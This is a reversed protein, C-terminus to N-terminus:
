TRVEPAIREFWCNGPTYDSSKIDHFDMMAMEERPLVKDKVMQQFRRFTVKDRKQTMIDEPDAFSCWNFGAWPSAWDQSALQPDDQEPADSAAAIASPPLDRALITVHYGKQQLELATTLGLVGAGLVFIKKQKKNSNATM